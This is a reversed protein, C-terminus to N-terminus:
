KVLTAEGASASGKLENSGARPTAMIGAQLCRGVQRMEGRMEKIEDKMQKANNKIEEKMGKASAEMKNTNAEIKNEMGKGMQQMAATVGALMACLQAMDPISPHVTGAPIPPPNQHPLPPSTDYAAATGMEPKSNTRSLSEDQEPIPIDQVPTDQVMPEGVLSCMVVVGSVREGQAAM